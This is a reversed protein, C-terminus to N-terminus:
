EKLYIIKAHPKKDKYLTLLAVSPDNNDRSAYASGPNIIMSNGKTFILSKHTHGYIRITPATENEPIRAPLHTVIIRYGFITFEEREKLYVRFLSGDVNGWVAKVPAIAKLGTLIEEDGIDGAHIIQDVDFFVDIVKAVLRGHTDSIIGIRYENNEM